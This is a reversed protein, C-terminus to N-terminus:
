KPLYSHGVLAEIRFQSLSRLGRWHLLTQFSPPFDRSVQLDLL